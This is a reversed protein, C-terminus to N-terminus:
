SRKWNRQWGAHRAHGNRLKEETRRASRKCRKSKKCVDNRRKELSSLFLALAVVLLSAKKWCLAITPICSIRKSQLMTMPLMEMLQFLVILLLLMLQFLVMLLMLMLMLMLLQQQM